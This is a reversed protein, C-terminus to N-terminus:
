VTNYYIYIYLTYIYIYIHIRVSAYSSTGEQPDSGDRGAEPPELAGM